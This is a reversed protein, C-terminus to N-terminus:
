EDQFESDSPPPMVMRPIRAKCNGYAQEVTVRVYRRALPWLDAHAARDEVIEARGNIRFRIRSGFDVFLMGIHGNVLINGLSNYLKNGAYDPFVLSRGNLVKLLPYPKGSADHERGRFSCDCKGLADATAIFFFPLAELYAALKAPITGRFMADLGAEDWVGEAGFRRQAEREGEHLRNGNTAGGGRAPTEKESM